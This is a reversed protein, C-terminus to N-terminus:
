KGSDAGEELDIFSAELSTTSPQLISSRRDGPLRDERRGCALEVWGKPLKSLVSFRCRWIVSGALTWKKMNSDFNPDDNPQVLIDGATTLGNKSLEANIANLHWNCQGPLFHDEVAVAQFTGKDFEVAVPVYVVVPYVTLTASNPPRECHQRRDTQYRATLALHLTPSIKGTLRIVHKPLANTKPYDPDGTKLVVGASSAGLSTSLLSAAALITLFRRMAMTVSREWGEAVGLRGPVVAIRSLSM